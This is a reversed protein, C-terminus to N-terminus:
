GILIAAAAPARVALCAQDVVDGRARLAVIAPLHGLNHISHEVRDRFLDDSPLVDRQSAKACEPAALPGRAAAGVNARALLDGDRRLRRDPESGAALELVGDATASARAAPSALRGLAAALLALAAAGILLIVSAQRALRSVPSGAHPM